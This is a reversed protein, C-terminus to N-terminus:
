VDFYVEKFEIGLLSICDSLKNGFLEIQFSKNSGTALTEFKNLMNDELTIFGYKQTYNDLVGQGNKGYFVTVM